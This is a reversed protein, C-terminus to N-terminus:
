DDTVEIDFVNDGSVVKYTLPTTEPDSYKSPILSKLPAASKTKVAEGDYFGSGEAAGGSMAMVVVKHEGVAAGDGPEVTTLEYGGDEGVTGGAPFVRSGDQKAASVPVFLVRGAKLPEGKYTVKGHVKALPPPGTEGCGLIAFAPVLAFLGLIHFRPAIM